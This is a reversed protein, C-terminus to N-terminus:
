KEVEADEAYWLIKKEYAIGDCMMGVVEGVGLPWFKQYIEPSVKEKSINEGIWKLIAFWDDDELQRGRRKLILDVVYEPTFEDVNVM